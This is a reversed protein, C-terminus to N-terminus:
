MNRLYQAPKQGLLHWTGILGLVLTIVIALSASLFVGGSLWVFDLKMIFVIIMYAALSGCILGFLATIIGLLGYELCFMRLLKTRTAGLTKLIVADYLRSQQSAALAGALVLLSSLLALSSAGRMALVVQSVIDNVTNLAEKVRIATISPFAKTLDRLLVTERETDAQNKLTITALGTHPAGNFTHPSFVMVFNIGLTRWEVKRLNAITATINRGLVNVEIQDGIKLSLGDAIEQDFSVLPAGKYNKDWWTGQTVKSGQPPVDAYTVGRDGELVWSINDAVKIEESPVDKVRTLRGRLLPVQEVVADPAKQMVLTQFEQSQSDPIDLFFFAPAQDPISQTLQRRLNADVHALMVLLTMGLGLSLILSPTLAGPRYLNAIALRLPLFRSHPLHRAIEMVGWAVLRLLAFAIASSAVFVMGIRKDYATVVSLIALLLLSIIIASFYPRRLRYATNDIQDRFLPAVMIDHARGLPALSFTTTVLIGYASALALNVFSIDPQLPVPLFPNLFYAAVFPISAGIVLGIIIGFVAIIAVQVLYLAVVERGSAGVSKFIAISKRKREIFNKIANAIGVGGVVLSTLGVLTLFQTFREINRSLNRDANLRTKIEWGAEPFLKKSEDGLAQLEAESQETPFAIRYSWRVLSGPQLLGTERLAAESILFRPGFGVGNALRDPESVLTARIQFLTSGVKVIDNIKLDLRILLVPDVIAGNIGNKIELLTSLPQQPQSAVEGLLPYVKDVAKLEVLNSGKDGAQVMARLSATFAMRGKTQFYLRESSTAERQLLGFAVDGGLLTRGERNVGESLSHSLSLVGAIATVGLALCALFVRFGGLGGRLERLALRLILAFSFSKRQSQFPLHELTGHM